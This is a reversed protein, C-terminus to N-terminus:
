PKEDALTILQHLERADRAADDLDLDARNEPNLDNEIGQAEYQIPINFRALRFGPTDLSGVLRGAEESARDLDCRAHELLTVISAALVAPDISARVPTAQDQM